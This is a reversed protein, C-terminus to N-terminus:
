YDDEAELSAPIPTVMHKLLPNPSMKACEAEALLARGKMNEYLTELKMDQPETFYCERAKFQEELDFYSKQLLRCDRQLTAIINSKTALLDKQRQNLSQQELWVFKDELSENEKELDDYRKEMESATKEKDQEMGTVKFELAEIAIAQQLNKDQMESFKSEWSQAAKEAKEARYEALARDKLINRLKENQSKLIAEATNNDNTVAEIIKNFKAAKVDLGPSGCLMKCTKNAEARMRDLRIAQAARDEELVDIKDWLAEKIRKHRAEQTELKECVLEYENKLKGYDEELEALGEEKIALAKEAEFDKPLKGARDMPNLLQVFRNEFVQANTQARLVEKKMSENDELAKKLAEGAKESDSQANTKVTALEKELADNNKLVEKIRRDSAEKELHNDARLKALGIKATDKDKMAQELAMQTAENQSLANHLDNQTSLTKEASESLKAKLAEITVGAKSEAEQVAKQLQSITSELKNKETKKEDLDALVTNYAM